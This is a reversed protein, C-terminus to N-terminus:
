FYILKKIIKYVQILKRQIEQVHMFILQIGYSLWIIKFAEFNSGYVLTHCTQPKTSMCFNCIMSPNLTLKHLLGEM